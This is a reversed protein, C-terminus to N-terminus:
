TLTRDAGDQPALGNAQMSVRVAPVIKLFDNVIQGVADHGAQHRADVVQHEEPVKLRPHGPRVGPVFHGPASIVSALGGPQM